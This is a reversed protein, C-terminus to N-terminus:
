PPVATSPLLSRAFVNVTLEERRIHFCGLPCVRKNNKPWDTSCLRYQYQYKTGVLIAVIKQHQNSETSTHATVLLNKPFLFAPQPPWIDLSPIAPKGVFVLHAPCSSSLRRLRAFKWSNDTGGILTQHGFSCCRHNTQRVRRKQMNELRPIHMGYRPLRGPASWSSITTRPLKRWPQRRRALRHEGTRRLCEGGCGGPSRRAWGRTGEAWCVRPPSLATAGRQLASVGLRFDLEPKQPARGQLHKYHFNRTCRTVVSNFGGTLSSSELRM